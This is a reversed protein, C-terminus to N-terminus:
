FSYLNHDRCYSDLYELTCPELYSDNKELMDQLSLHNHFYELADAEDVQRYWVLLLVPKVYQIFERLKNLVDPDYANPCNKKNMWPLTEVETVDSYPEFRISPLDEKNKTQKTGGYFKIRPGHGARIESFYIFEPILNTIDSRSYEKKIKSMAFIDDKDWDKQLVLRKM